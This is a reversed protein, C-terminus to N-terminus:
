SAQGLHWNLHETMASRLESVDRRIERVDAKLEDVDSQLAIAMETLGTIGAKVASVETRMGELARLVRDEDM